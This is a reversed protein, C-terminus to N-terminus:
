GQCTGHKCIHLNTVHICTGWVWGRSPKGDHTDGATSDCCAPSVASLHGKPLKQTGHTKAHQHKQPTIKGHLIGHLGCHKTSGPAESSSFAVSGCLTRPFSSCSSGIM